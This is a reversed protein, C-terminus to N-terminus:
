HSKQSADDKPWAQNILNVLNNFQHMKTQVDTKLIDQDIQYDCAERHRKLDQLIYGIQKCIKSNTPHVYSMFRDILTAHTGGNIIFHKNDPCNISSTKAIHYAAYYTRSSASRWAAESDFEMLKEAIKIIENADISM